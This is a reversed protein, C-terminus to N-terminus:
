NSSRRPQYDLAPVTPGDDREAVLEGRTVVSCLVCLAGVGGVCILTNPWGITPALLIAALAGIIQGAYGLNFFAAAVSTVDGHVDREQTLINTRLQYLTGGFSSVALLSLALPLSHIVALGTITLIELLIAGFLMTRTAPAASLRWTLGSGVLGGVGVAAYCLGVTNSGGLRDSAVVVLVSSVATVVAGASITGAGLLRLTPVKWVVALGRQTSGLVSTKAKETPGSRPLTLFLVSAAVFTGIDFSLLPAPGWIALIPTAVAPGVFVASARLNSFISNARVRDEYPALRSLTAQTLPNVVANLLQSAVILVYIAWVAPAHIQLVVGTLAVAQLGLCVAAVSIPDYRSALASAPSGGFIRPATRVLMYTAPAAASGTKGYLLVVLAVTTMWDGYYSLSSGICLRVLDGRRAEKSRPAHIKIKTFTVM